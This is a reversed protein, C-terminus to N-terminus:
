HSSSISEVVLDRGLSFGDVFPPKCGLSPHLLFSVAPKNGGENSLWNFEIWNETCMGLLQTLFTAWLDSNEVWDHVEVVLGPAAEGMWIFM